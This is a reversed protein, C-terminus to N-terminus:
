ARNKGSLISDARRCVRFGYSIMTTSSPDVSLVLSITERYGTLYRTGLARRDKPQACCPYEAFGGSVPDGQQISIVIPQRLFQLQLDSRNFILRKAIAGGGHEEIVPM